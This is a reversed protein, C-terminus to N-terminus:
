GTSSVPEASGSRLMQTPIGTSEVLRQVSVEAKPRNVEDDSICAM